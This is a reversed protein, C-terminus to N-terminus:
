REKGAKLTGGARETDSYVKIVASRARRIRIPSKRIMLLGEHNRPVPSEIRHSPISVRIATFKWLYSGVEAKHLVGSM